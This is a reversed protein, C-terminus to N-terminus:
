YIDKKALISEACVIEVGNEDLARGASKDYLIVNNKSCCSVGPGISLVIAGVINSGSPALSNGKDKGVKILDTKDSHDVNGRRALVNDHTPEFDM